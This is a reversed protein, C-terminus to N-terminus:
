LLKTSILEKIKSILKEEEETLVKNHNFVRLIHELENEVNVLVKKIALRSNDLVISESNFISVDMGTDVFILGKPYDLYDEASDVNVIPAKHLVENDIIHADQIIHTLGLEVINIFRPITVNILEENNFGLYMFVREGFATLYSVGVLVRM